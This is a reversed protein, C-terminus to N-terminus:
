SPSGAITPAYNKLAAQHAITRANAASAVTGAAEQHTTGLKAIQRDFGAFSM